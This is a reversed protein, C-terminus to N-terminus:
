GPLKAAEAEADAKVKEEVDAKVKAEAEAKVQQQTKGILKEFRAVFNTPVCQIFEDLLRHFPTEPAENIHDEVTKM